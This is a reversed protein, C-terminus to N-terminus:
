PQDGEEDGPLPLARQEPVEVLEEAGCIWRRPFRLVGDTARVIVRGTRGRPGLEFDEAEVLVGKRDRYAAGLRV